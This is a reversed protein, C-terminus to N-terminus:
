IKGGLPYYNIIDPRDSKNQYDLGEIPFQGKHKTLFVDPLLNRRVYSAELLPPFWHGGVNVVALSNNAHIHFLVFRTNLWTL